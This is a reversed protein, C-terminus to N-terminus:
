VAIGCICNEVCHCSSANLNYDPIGIQNRGTPNYKQLHVMDIITTHKFANIKIENFIAEMELPDIDKRHLRMRTSFIAALEVKFVSADYERFYFNVTEERFTTRCRIWLINTRTLRVSNWIERDHQVFM